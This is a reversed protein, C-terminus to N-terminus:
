SFKEPKSKSKLDMIFAMRAMDFVIKVCIKEMKLDQKAVKNVIYFWMDFQRAFM